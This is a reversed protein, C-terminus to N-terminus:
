HAARCAGAGGCNVWRCGCATPSCSPSSPWTPWRAGPPLVGTAVGAIGAALFLTANSLASREARASFLSAALLVCGFALLGRNM